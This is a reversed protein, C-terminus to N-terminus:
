WKIVHYILPMENEMPYALMLGKHHPLKANTKRIVEITNQKEGEHCPLLAYPFVFEVWISELLCSPFGVLPTKKAFGLQPPLQLSLTKEGVHNKLEYVNVGNNLKWVHLPISEFLKRKPVM